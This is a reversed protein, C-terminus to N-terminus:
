GNSLSEFAPARRHSAPDRVDQELGVAAGIAARVDKLTEAVAATVAKERDAGIPDLIVQIM